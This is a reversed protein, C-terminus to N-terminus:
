LGNGARRCCAALRCDLAAQDIGSEAKLADCLQLRSDVLVTDFRDRIEALEVPVALRVIVKESDDLEALYLDLPEHIAKARCGDRTGGSGIWARQIDARDTNYRDGVDARWGRAHTLRIPVVVTQLNEPMEFM